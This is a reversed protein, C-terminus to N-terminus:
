TSKQKKLYIYICALAKGDAHFTLKAHTCLHKLSHLWAFTLHLTKSNIWQTSELSDSWTYKNQDNLHSKASKSLMFPERQLKFLEAGEQNSTGKNPLRQTNTQVTRQAQRQRAQREAIM